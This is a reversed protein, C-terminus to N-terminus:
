TFSINLNTTMTDGMLSENLNTIHATIEPLSYIVEDNVKIQLSTIVSHGLAELQADTDKLNMYATSTMTDDTFNFTTDRTFSNLEYTHEGNFIINVM